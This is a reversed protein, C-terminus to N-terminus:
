ELVTGKLGGNETVPRSEHAERGGGGGGGVSGGSTESSVDSSVLWPLDMVVEGLDEKEVLIARSESEERGGGRGGGVSGGSTESVDLSM